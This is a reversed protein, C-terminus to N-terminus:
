HHRWNEGCINSEKGMPGVVNNDQKFSVNWSFEIFILGKAPVFNIFKECYKQRHMREIKGQAKPNYTVRCSHIPCM